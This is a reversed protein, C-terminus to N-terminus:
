HISQKYVHFCVKGGQYGAGFHYTPPYNASGWGFSHTVQFNPSMVSTIDFKAGDIMHVTPLTGQKM